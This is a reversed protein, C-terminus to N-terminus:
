QLYLYKLEAALATPEASIQVAGTLRASDPMGKAGCSEQDQAMIMKARGKVARIGASGDFGMGSFIIVGIKGPHCAFISRIVADISPNFSLEPTVHQKLEIIGGRIDVTKDRPVLFVTNPKVKAGDAATQVDWAKANDTLRALMQGFANESIHQAVFITIPLAPLAGFFERLAQPGGASSGIIWADPVNKNDAEDKKSDLESTLDPLSKRIEEVTRNRWSIRDAQGMAFLDKEHMLCIPEDRGMMELVDECEVIAPDSMDIILIHADTSHLTGNKISTLDYEKLAGVLPSLLETFLAKQVENTSVIGVRM